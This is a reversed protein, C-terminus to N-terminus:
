KLNVRFYVNFHQFFEKSHKVCFENCELALTISFGSSYQRGPTLYTSFPQKSVQVHALM